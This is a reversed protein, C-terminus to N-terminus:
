FCGENSKTTLEIELRKVIKLGIPLIKFPFPKLLVAM